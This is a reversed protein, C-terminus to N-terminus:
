ACFPPGGVVQAGRPQDGVGGAGDALLEVVEGEAFQALVAAQSNCILSFSVVKVSALFQLLEKAYVPVVLFLGDEM